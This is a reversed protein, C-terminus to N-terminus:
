PKVPRMARLDVKKRPNSLPHNPAFVTAMNARRRMTDYEGVTLPQKACGPWVRYLDVVTGPKGDIEVHWWETDVQWIKVTVLPGDKVLRTAYFGEVPEDGVLM